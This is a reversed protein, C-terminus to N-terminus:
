LNQIVSQIVELHHGHAVSFVYIQLLDLSGQLHFGMFLLEVVHDALYM